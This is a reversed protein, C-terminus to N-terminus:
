SAREHGIDEPFVRGFGKKMERIGNLIQNQNAVLREIDAECHEIHRNQMEIIQDKKKLEAILQPRSMFIRKM